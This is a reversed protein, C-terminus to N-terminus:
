TKDKRPEPKSVPLAETRSWATRLASSSHLLSRFGAVAVLLLLSPQEHSFKCCEWSAVEQGSSCGQCHGSPPLERSSLALFHTHKHTQRDTQRYYSTIHAHTNSSTQM